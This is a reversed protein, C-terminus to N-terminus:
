LVIVKRQSAWNRWQSRRAHPHCFDTEGTLQRSASPGATACSSRGHGEGARGSRRGAQRTAPGPRAPRTKRARAPARGADGRGFRGVTMYALWPQTMTMGGRRPLRAPAARGMQAAAPAGGPGARGCAARRPVRSRRVQLPKAGARSPPGTPKRSRPYLRIPLTRSRASSARGHGATQGDPAAHKRCLQLDPCQTL